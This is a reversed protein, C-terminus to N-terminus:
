NAGSWAEIVAVAQRPNLRPDCLSAYRDAVTALGAKDAVCETTDDPTMELHLGGAVGGEATVARRFGRIEESITTLLRTKRGDRTTITNGHM